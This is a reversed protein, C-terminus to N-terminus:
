RAVGVPRSTADGRRCLYGVSAFKWPNDMTAAVTEGSQTRAGLRGAPREKEITKNPSSRWQVRGAAGLIM